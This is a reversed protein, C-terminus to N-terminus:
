RRIRDGHEADQLVGTGRGRHFALDRALRWLTALDFVAGRENGTRDLWADVCGEDCFLRQHGCTHVVDDWMHAVPVLFHGVQDGAPVCIANVESRPPVGDM